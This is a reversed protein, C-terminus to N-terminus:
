VSKAATAGRPRSDRGFFGGFSMVACTVRGSLKDILHEIECIKRGQLAYVDTGEVDDSSIL